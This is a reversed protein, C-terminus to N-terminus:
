AQRARTAASLGPRPQRGHSTPWPYLPTSRSGNRPRPGRDELEVEVRDRGTHLALAAMLACRAVGGGDARSVNRLSRNRLKRLGVRFLDRLKAAFAVACPRLDRRVARSANLVGAELNVPEGVALAVVHRIAPDTADAAVIRVLLELALGGRVIRFAGGTMARRGARTRGALSSEAPQWM